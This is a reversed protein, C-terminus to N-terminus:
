QITKRKRSRKAYNDKELIMNRIERKSCENLKAELYIDDETFGCKQSSVVAPKKIYEIFMKPLKPLSAKIFNFAENEKDGDPIFGFRNSTKSLFVCMEPAIFSLYRNFLFLNFNEGSPVVDSKEKTTAEDILKYFEKFDM